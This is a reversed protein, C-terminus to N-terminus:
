KKTFYITLTITFYIFLDPKNFKSKILGMHEIAYMQNFYSNNLWNTSDFQFNDDCQKETKFYKEERTCMSAIVMTAGATDGSENGPFVRPVSKALQPILDEKVAQVKFLCFKCFIPM